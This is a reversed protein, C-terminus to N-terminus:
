VGRCPCLGPYTFSRRARVNGTMQDPLLELGRLIGSLSDAILLRQQQPSERCKSLLHSFSCAKHTSRVEGWALGGGPLYLEPGKIGKERRRQSLFSAQMVPMAYSLGRKGRTGGGRGRTHIPSWQHSATVKSPPLKFPVHQLKHKRPEELVLAVSPPCFAVDPHLVNVSLVLDPGQWGWANPSGPFVQPLFIGVGVSASRRPGSSSMCPLPQLVTAPCGNPMCFNGLMGGGWLHFLRLHVTTYFVMSPRLLCSQSRM